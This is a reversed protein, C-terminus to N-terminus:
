EDKNNILILYAPHLRPAVAWTKTFLAACRRKQSKLFNSKKTNKKRFKTSQTQPKQNNSSGLLPPPEAPLPGRPAALWCCGVGAVRLLRCCDTCYAPAQLLKCCGAFPVTFRCVYSVHLLESCEAVTELLRCSAEPQQLQSILTFYARPLLVLCALCIVHWPYVIQRAPCGRPGFLEPCTSRM